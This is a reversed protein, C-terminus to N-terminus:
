GRGAVLGPRGSMSDMVSKKIMDAGLNLPAADGVLMPTVAGLPSVVIVAISTVRGARVETMLREALQMIAPHVQPIEPRIISDM